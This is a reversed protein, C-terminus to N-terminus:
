DRNVAGRRDTQVKGEQKIKIEREQVIRCVHQDGSYWWPETVMFFLVLALPLRGRSPLETEHLFSLPLGLSSTRLAGLSVQPKWPPDRM